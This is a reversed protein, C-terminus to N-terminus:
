ALLAVLHHCLFDSPTAGDTGASTREHKSTRHDRQTFPAFLALKQKLEIEIANFAAKPQGTRLYGLLAAESTFPAGRGSLYKKRLDNLYRHVDNPHDLVKAEV